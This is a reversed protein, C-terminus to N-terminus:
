IIEERWLWSILEDELRFQQSWFQVVEFGSLRVRDGTKVELYSIREFKVPSLCDDDFLQLRDPPPERWYVKNLPRVRVVLKKCNGDADEFVQAQFQYNITYEYGNEPVQRMRMGTGSCAPLLCILVFTFFSLGRMTKATLYILTDFAISSLVALPSDEVM